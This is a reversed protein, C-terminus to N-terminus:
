FQENAEGKILTIREIYVLGQDPQGIQLWGQELFQELEFIDIIKYELM